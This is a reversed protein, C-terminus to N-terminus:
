PLRVQHALLPQSAAGLNKKQTGLSSLSYGPTHKFNGKLKIPWHFLALWPVYEFGPVYHPAWFSSLNQLQSPSIRLMHNLKMQPM